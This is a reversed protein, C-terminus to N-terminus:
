HVRAKRLSRVRRHAGARCKQSLFFSPLLFCFISLTRFVFCCCLEFRSDDFEDLNGAKEFFPAKSYQNLYAKRKKLQDFQACTRKILQFFFSSFFFFSTLVVSLKREGWRGGTERVHAISTHNALMLGSVRNPNEVYPSRKSLAVQISAPGWPIFEVDNKDRIRQLSKHVQTPDVDGQIINLAAIYCGKQDKSGSGRTSVMMNSPQLLRRMVDLM